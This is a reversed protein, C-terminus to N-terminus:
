AAASPHCPLPGPDILDRHESSLRALDARRRTRATELTETTGVSDKWVEDLLARYTAGGGGPQEGALTVLDGRAM